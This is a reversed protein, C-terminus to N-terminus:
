NGYIAPMSMKKPLNDAEWKHFFTRASSSCLMVGIAPLCVFCFGLLAAMIVLGVSKSAECISIGVSGNPQRLRDRQALMTMMAALPWQAVAAGWVGPPSPVFQLTWARRKMSEEAGCKQTEGPPLPDWGNRWVTAIKLGSPDNLQFLKQFMNLYPTLAVVNGQGDKIFYQLYITGDCSHYKTCSDGHAEGAYKYIKEEVTYVTAGGCDILDIVTGFPTKREQSKGFIDGGPLTYTTVSTAQPLVGAQGSGLCDVSWDLLLSKDQVNTWNGHTQSHCADPVEVSVELPWSLMLPCAFALDLSAQTPPPTMTPQEMFGKLLYHGIATDLPQHDNYPELVPLAPPYRTPETVNALGIMPVYLPFAPIQRHLEGRKNHAAARFANFASASKKRSSRLSGDTVKQNVTLAAASVFLHFLAGAFLRSFAM